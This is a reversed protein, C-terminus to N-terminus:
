HIYSLYYVPVVVGGGGMPSIGMVCSIAQRPLANYTVDCFLETSYRTECIFNNLKDCRRDNWRHNNYMDICHEFGNFNNPEGPEWNTYTLSVDEQIWRFIRFEVVDTGGIWYINPSM